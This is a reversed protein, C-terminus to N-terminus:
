RGDVQKAARSPSVRTPENPFKPFHPPLPLDPLGDDADRAAMALLGDLSSEATGSLNSADGRAAVLNPVTVITADPPEIDDLDDWAVPFSVRADSTARVAYACAMTRDWLNQNYDVFVRRGRQEKWWSATVEAPARREAERAVAVAAARVDVFNSPVIRALVHIGSAGSTKVWSSVGHEGLVERVLHAVRCTTAWAVGPMPDLDIRLEDAVDARFRGDEGKALRAAWPHVTIAGLNAAWLVDAISAPCLEEATNGSGFTVEVTRLWDPRKTPVRKQVFSKGGVGDPYRELNCPRDQCHPMLLPATVLYYEVLDRKTLGASPFYEKDPSSITVRRGEVDLELPM